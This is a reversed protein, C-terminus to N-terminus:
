KQKDLVNVERFNDILLKGKTLNSYGLVIEGEELVYIKCALM